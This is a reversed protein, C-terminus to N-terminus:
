VLVIEGTGRHRKQKGQGLSMISERNYELIVKVENLLESSGLEARHGLPQVFLDDCKMDSCVAHLCAYSAEM